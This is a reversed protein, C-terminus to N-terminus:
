APRNSEPAERGLTAGRLPPGPPRTVAGRRVEQRGGLVTDDTPRSRPDFLPYFYPTKIPNGEYVSGIVDGAIAGLM